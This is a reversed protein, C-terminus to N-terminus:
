CGGPQQPMAFYASLVRSMSPTSLETSRLAHMSSAHAGRSPQASYHCSDGIGDIQAPTEIYRVIIMSGTAIAESRM